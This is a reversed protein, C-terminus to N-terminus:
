RAHARTARIRAALRGMAAETGRRLRTALRQAASPRHTLDRLASIVNARAEERSRGQSIAAPYEEIRAAIWGSEAEEYFITLRETEEHHAVAM